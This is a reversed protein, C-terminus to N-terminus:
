VHGQAIWRTAAHRHCYQLPQYCHECQAISSKPATSCFAKCRCQRKQKIIALVILIFFGLPKYAVKEITFGYAAAYIMAFTLTVFLIALINYDMISMIGAVILGIFAGVMYVEGHAFNILGIVGYVLTYGLALLAYISGRTLGSSFLELFYSLIDYTGTM